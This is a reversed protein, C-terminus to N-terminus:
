KELEESAINLEDRRKEVAGILVTRVTKPIGADGVAWRRATRYTVGFEESVPRLYHDGFILKCIYRFKQSTM